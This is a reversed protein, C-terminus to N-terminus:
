SASRPRLLRETAVGVGILLVLGGALALWTWVTEDRSGPAFGPPSYDAASVRGSSHGTHAYTALWRGNTRDFRFALLIDPSFSSVFGVSTAGSFAVSAGGGSTAAVQLDPIRLQPSSLRAADGARRQLLDAVFRNALPRVETEARQAAREEAASSGFLAGTTRGGGFSPPRPAGRTETGSHGPFLVVLLAIAGACALIAAGWVLRRRRRPSSLM